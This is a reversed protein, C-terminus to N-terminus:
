TSTSTRFEKSNKIGSDGADSIRQFKEDRLRRCSFNKPIKRGSTELMFFEKSNKTGSDRAHFIGSFKGEQLRRSSFNKPIKQGPTEPM